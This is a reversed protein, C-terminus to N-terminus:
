QALDVWEANNGTKVTTTVISEQEQDTFATNLFTSNLWERIECKDWGQYTDAFVRHADLGYRSILLARGDQVDLVLWEIPEVEGNAGQPYTGLTVYDGVAPQLGSAFASSVIALCLLVTALVLGPKKM